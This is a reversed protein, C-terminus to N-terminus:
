VMVGVARSPGQAMCTAMLQRVPRQGMALAAYFAPHPLLVLPGHVHTNHVDRQEELRWRSCRLGFGDVVYHPYGSCGGAAAAM